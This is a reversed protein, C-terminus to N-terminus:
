IMLESLFNFHVQKHFNTFWWLEFIFLEELKTKISDEYFM